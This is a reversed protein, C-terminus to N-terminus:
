ICKFKGSSYSISVSFALRDMHEFANSSVLAILSVRQTNMQHQLTRYDRTYIIRIKSRLVSHCPIQEAYPYRTAYM